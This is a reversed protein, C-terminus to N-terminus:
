APEPRHGPVGDLGKGLGDLGRRLDPGEIRGGPVDEALHHPVMRRDSSEDPAIPASEEVPVSLAPDQGLPNGSPLRLVLPDGERLDLLIEVVTDLLVDGAEVADVLVPTPPEAEDHGHVASAQGTREMGRPRAQSPTACEKHIRFGVDGAREGFLVEFLVVEPEVRRLVHRGRIRIRAPDFEFVEVVEDAFEVSEGDVRLQFEQLVLQPPDEPRAVGRDEEGLVGVGHIVQAVAQPGDVARADRAIRPAAALGPVALAPSELALLRDLLLKPLSLGDLQQQAGLGRAFAEVKLGAPDEDVVVHRPVGHPDLLPDPADVPDALAVLLDMDLVVKELVGDFRSDVLPEAGPDAPELIHDPRELGDQVVYAPRDPLQRHHLPM